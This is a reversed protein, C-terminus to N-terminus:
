AMPIEKDGVYFMFSRDEQEIGDVPVSSADPNQIFYEYIVKQLADAAPRHLIQYMIEGNGPRYVIKKFDETSLMSPVDNDLVAPDSAEEDRTLGIGLNVEGSETITDDNRPLQVLWLYFRYKKVNENEETM